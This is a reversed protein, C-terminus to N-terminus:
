ESASGAGARVAILHKLVIAFFLLIGAGDTYIRADMLMLGAVTLVIREGTGLRSALWAELAAAFCVVGLAATAIALVVDAPRGSLLLETQYVFFFPVLFAVLGLRIAKFGITIPNAGAIAATAYAAVAVPPTIASLVSFYIIFLHAALTPLGLGALAPATLVATLIYASPVPMGMGLVVCVLMTLLLVFLLHDGTLHLLLGTFKGGIGSFAIAGVVVGASATAAAVLVSTRAAQHLTAAIKKVGMRTDRRVWSVAVTLLIAVTAAVAPTKGQVLLWLLAGPPILFQLNKVTLTRIGPTHERPETELGLRHARFHVQALVSLYYLIGPVTAAIAIDLYSIGTFEVMIFAASGMVPPLISGGTAAVAVVAAADAAPYGARKMLPISFTGTTVADSTPSGSVMGFLACSLVAAKAAGGRATSATARALDIFFQGAGSQYLAVGLLVFLFVYTSAAALPAGFVGNMTFVMQDALEDLSFYRHSFPGPIWHGVLLYLSFVLVTWVIVWEILRRTLELVLVVLIAAYLLDATSLADILPWRYLVREFHFWYYLGFFASFSALLMELMTPPEHFQSRYPRYGLFAFTLVWSLFLARQLLPDLTSFVVLWVQFLSFSAGLIFLSAELKRHQAM